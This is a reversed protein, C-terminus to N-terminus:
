AVLQLKIRGFQVIDDTEIYVTGQVARGNVFTGNTSDLDTVYWAYDRSEFRAHIASLFPEDIAISCDPHRGITTKSNISFSTGAELISEAPDIVILKARTSRKRRPQQASQRLDRMTVRLVQWLFLYLLGAFALRLGLFFWDYPLPIEMALM